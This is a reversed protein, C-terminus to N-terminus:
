PTIKVPKIIFYAENHNPLFITKKVQYKVTLFELEEKRIAFLQKKSFDLNDLGGVYCNQCENQNNYFSLLSMPENFYGTMYLQDYNNQKTVFYKIIEKPGYQWGWYDASYLPYQYYNRLFICAHIIFAFYVVVNIITPRVRFDIKKTTQDIAKLAYATIFPVTILSYFIAFSYPPSDIKTTLLDPLPYIIFLIFFPAFYHKQKDKALFLYLFGVILFVLYIKLYIGNGHVSHRKIFSNPLDSEGKLFLYDYSYYKPYNQIFLPVKQFLNISENANKDKLRQSFQPNYKLQYVIPLYFLLFVTGMIIVGKSKNFNFKKYFVESLTISLLLLPTAIMYGGYGYSSIGFSAGGFILYKTKKTKLYKFYFCLGLTVFFFAPMHGFNVRSIHFFLPSFALMLIPLVKRVRLQKLTLHIVLLGLLAYFVSALRLSFESLGFLVFPATAIIPLYSLVYNFHYYFFPPLFYPTLSGKTLQLSINGIQAEDCFLGAPISGVKYVFVATILLFILLSKIKVLKKKM